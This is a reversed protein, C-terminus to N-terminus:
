DKRESKWNFVYHNKYLDMKFISIQICSAIGCSIISAGIVLGPIYWNLAELRMHESLCIAITYLGSFIIFSTISYLIKIIKKKHKIDVMVSKQNEM